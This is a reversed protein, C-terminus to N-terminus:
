KGAPNTPDVGEDNRHIWCHHPNGGHRRDAERRILRLCGKEACVLQRWIYAGFMLLVPIGAVDAAIDLMNDPYLPYFSLIEIM